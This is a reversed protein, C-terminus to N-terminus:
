PRSRVIAATIDSITLTTVMQVAGAVALISPMGARWVVLLFLPDAAMRLM